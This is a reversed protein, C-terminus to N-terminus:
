IQGAELQIPLYKVIEQPTAIFSKRHFSSTLQAYFITYYKRFDYLDMKLCIKPLHKVFFGIKASSFYFIFKKHWSFSFV